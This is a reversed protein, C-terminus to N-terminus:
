DYILSKDKKGLRLILEIRRKGLEGKEKKAYVNKMNSFM